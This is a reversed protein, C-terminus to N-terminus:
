CKLKGERTLQAYWLNKNVCQGPNLNRAPADEINTSNLDKWYDCLVKVCNEMTLGGQCSCSVLQNCYIKDECVGIGLRKDDFGQIKGDSNLDIGEDIYDLCFQASARKSCDQQLTMTCKDNCYQRAATLVTESSQQRAIGQLGRKDETIGSLFFAFVIITMCALVILVAAMEFLRGRNRPQLFRM